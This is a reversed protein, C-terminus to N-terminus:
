GVGLNGIEHRLQARSVPSRGACEFKGDQRRGPRALNTTGPPLFDVHGGSQPCDGGAPHLGAPLVPHRETGSCLCDQLVHGRRANVIEYERITATAPRKGDRGHELQQLPHALAVESRVPEARGERIPASLLGTERALNPLHRQRVCDTVFDLGSVPAPVQELLPPLKSLSPRM